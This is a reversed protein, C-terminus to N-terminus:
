VEALFNLIHLEILLYFIALQRGGGGVNGIEIWNQIVIAKKSNSPPLLICVERVVTTMGDYQVRLMREGLNQYSRFM